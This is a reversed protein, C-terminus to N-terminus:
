RRVALWIGAFVFVAGILHYSFLREGLFIMALAAGSVPILNVFMAARNPGISQIALNWSFTALLTPFVSLYLMAVAVERTLEFPGLIALEAILAPLLLVIGTIAIVFMLMAPDPTYRRRPLLVAYVSWGVVALLMLLDGVNLELNLLVNLDARAVMVLIGAFACAIGLRQRGLLTTGAIAWALMATLAPQSANVLVANTATTYYVAIVSMTSGFVMFFALLVLSPGHARLQRWQKPVRRWVFFALIAAAIIWRSISLTMPPVAMSVSRTVVPPSSYVIM